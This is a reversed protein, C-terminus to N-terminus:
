SKIETKPRCLYFNGTGGKGGRHTLKGNMVVGCNPCESEQEALIRNVLEAYRQEVTSGNFTVACSIGRKEAIECLQSFTMAKLSKLTLKM